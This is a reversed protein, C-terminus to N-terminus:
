QISREVEACDMMTLVHKMQEIRGQDYGFDYSMIFLNKIWEDQPMKSVMELFAQRNM